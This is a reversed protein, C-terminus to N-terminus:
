EPRLDIYTNPLAAKLRAIGAATINFCRGLRLRKWNTKRSLQELGRDTIGPCGSLDLYILRNMAVLPPLGNDTIRTDRLDLATITSMKAVNELGRDSIHKCHGLALHQLKPLRLEALRALGIDSLPADKVKWGGFFDLDTLETLRALAPIDRDSLGRARVTRTSIPLAAVEVRSDTIPPWKGCGCLVIPM